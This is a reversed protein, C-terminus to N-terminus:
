GTLQQGITFGTPLLCCCGQAYIVKCCPAPTSATVEWLCTVNCGAKWGRGPMKSYLFGGGCPLKRRSVKLISPHSDGSHTLAKWRREPPLGLCLQKGHPQPLAQWSGEEEEQTLTRGLPPPPKGPTPAIYLVGETCILCKCTPPEALM